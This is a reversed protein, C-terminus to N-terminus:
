LSSFYFFRDKVKTYLNSRNDVHFAKIRLELEQKSIDNSIYCIDLFDQRSKKNDGWFLDKKIKIKINSAINNILDNILKEAALNAKELLEMPGENINVDFLVTDIIEGSDVKGEIIHAVAGYQKAKNYVAWHHPDRGPFDLSGAHINYGINIKSLVENSFIINHNFSL